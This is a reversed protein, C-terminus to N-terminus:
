VRHLVYELVFKSGLYGVVLLGAGILTLRVAVAGRWGAFLRGLLLAAFILWAAASLVTKHMLSQALLDHHHIWGTVLSLTLLAFGLTLLHFLFSEMADLPPLAGLLAGANTEKLGRNQFHLTIAQVGTLGLVSYALLSSLIHTVHVGGTAAVIVRHDDFNGLLVFLATVPLVFVAAAALPKRLCNFLLIAAILLATVSGAKFFALNVGQNVGQPTFMSAGAGAAHGALAFLWLLFAAVGVSATKHKLRMGLVGAAALYLVFALLSFTESEM